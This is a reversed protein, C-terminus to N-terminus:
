KKLELGELAEKLTHKEIYNGELFGRSGHTIYGKECCALKNNQINKIGYNPSKSQPNVGSDLTRRLRQLTPKM